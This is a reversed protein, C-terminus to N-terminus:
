RKELLAVMEVHHTHPFMDLPQVTKIRYTDSMLALDRAATAPNCSVFVVKPAALNNIAAVVKPHMGSRPPDAVLVDPTFDLSPLVDRIDGLLFKCNDVGNQVCNEVADKVASEVLEVGLVEGADASLWIPITGTGSYLDLVRESGTLAAFDSVVGYLTEAQRTNTQFFSNASVTFRFPGIADVLTPSGALPIEYDGVAVGSKKASVNNVVGAISPHAEMIKEAMSFLVPTEEWATVLNVLYRDEAVSRRIVVFRWFGEHTRLGYAPLGSALVRERVTALIANAEETQLLCRSIDLVKDFTGPVHLGLAFEKPPGGEGLEEPLLWRRDACSFEMKNRYGWIEPAPIPPLMDFGSLGGIRELSEAVQAAKYRVQKEYDLFQWKCGGCWRSWPCPPEVRDPSPTLVELTRARAWAKKKKIVVASVVDGPVAGEVFVAMGDVRAVGLAGFAAGEIALELIQKKKLSM